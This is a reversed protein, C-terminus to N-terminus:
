ELCIKTGESLGEIVWYNTSDSGGAIFSKQVKKGNEEVTVYTVSDVTTVASKPVLVVDSVTRVEANISFSMRRWWGDYGRNASAMRELDESSVRVLTYDSSLRESLAWKSVTVVEGEATYEKGSDDKYSINAVNGCTLQGAKDEFVVYCNDESSITAIGYDALLIDGEEFRSRM